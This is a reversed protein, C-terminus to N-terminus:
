LRVIERDNRDYLPGYPTDRSRPSIYTGSATITSRIALNKKVRLTAGNVGTITSIVDTHLTTRHPLLPDSIITRSGGHFVMTDPCNEESLGALSARYSYDIDECYAPFFNEDFCGIQELAIPNIAFCAYRHSVVPRRFGTHFGACTVIHRDRHQIAKDILKDTDGESFHIDDNVILVLDAEDGYANILGENWSKSVGRNTEIFYSVVGPQHSIREATAVTPPHKSHLFLHFNIQHHCSKASTVLRESTDGSNYLVTVVSVKM